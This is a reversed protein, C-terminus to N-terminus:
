DASWARELIVDIGAEPALTGYLRGAYESLRSECFADAVVAPAYRVLLSAQLTLAMLETIRRARQEIREREGFEQKLRDIAADLRRHGGRGSEVERLFAPIAQPEREMVRLVDLCIVNGSGEWISNVPAERYLRPLISEEIYGNGGLCEMAEYIFQPARKNTWYKTVATGVRGLLREEPDEQARNFSRALRLILAVGAELELALDALLNRMLPQGLLPKGFASRHRAHHLAQVFAQRMMGVPASAADLRTQQVMEIITRVGRGEEGVRRAWTNQYEIEASANSRNGLKDKLRQIFFPNRRGDPRWRPVLFCTLGAPTQALTLFADSMPASCFWKHGTLEYEGGGLAQAQTTNARVDSGGQKETMAMGFTVGAKESSPLCRSDYEPVLIKPEWRRAVGPELRLAPVVAHTMTIPCCFGQEPQTLLYLAAVHAVHGGEGQRTWAISHVGHRIALRMLEHYAPHYRVEDIRRGYRDFAVLEPPQRNALFGQEMVYESGTLAGLERLYEGIWPAGERIVAECLVRDTDFAQYDGLPPPQNTVQHTPLDTIPDRASM